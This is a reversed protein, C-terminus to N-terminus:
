RYSMPKVTLVKRMLSLRGIHYSEYLEEDALGELCNLFLRRNLAAVASLAELRRDM